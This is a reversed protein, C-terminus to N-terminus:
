VRVDVFVGVVVGGGGNFVTVRDQSHSGFFFFAVFRQTFGIMEFTRRPAVM